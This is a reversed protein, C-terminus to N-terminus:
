AKGEPFGSKIHAGSGLRMFTGVAHAIPQAPDDQYAVGRTFIVTPTVRYCEAFGYVDKHPDAPHMYDIRLDLTPCVEFDPLFCVTSIGCTTDMLTTIAGGHIGGTEPNGVIKESYPLRLTLGKKDAAEVQMGLVQCHRLASLFREARQVLPNKNM